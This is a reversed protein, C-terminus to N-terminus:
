DNRSVCTGAHCGARPVDLLDPPLHPFTLLGFKRIIDTKAGEIGEETGREGGERGRVVLFLVPKSINEVRYWRPLRKLNLTEGRSVFESHM